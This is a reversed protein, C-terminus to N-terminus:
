KAAAKRLGLLGLLGPHSPQTRKAPPLSIWDGMERQFEPGYTTDMGSAPSFTMEGFVPQGAIEYLDVRVLPFGASLRRAADLMKDLSAPRPVHRHVPIRDYDLIKHSLDEWTHAEYLEETTSSPTTQDYVVVCYRPEGNFCYFKYDVLSSCPGADSVLFKEAIVRPKIALYHHEGSM